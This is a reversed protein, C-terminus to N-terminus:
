RQRIVPLLFVLCIALLPNFLAWEECMLGRNGEGRYTFWEERTSSSPIRHLAGMPVSVTAIELYQPDTKFEDAGIEFTRKWEQTGKARRWGLTAAVEFRYAMLVPSEVGPYRLIGSEATSYCIDLNEIAPKGVIKMAHRAWEAPVGEKANHFEASLAGLGVVTRTCSSRLDELDGPIVEGRAALIDTFWNYLEFALKETSRGKYGINEGITLEDQSNFEAPLRDHANRENLILVSVTPNAQIIETLDEWSAAGGKSVSQSISATLACM